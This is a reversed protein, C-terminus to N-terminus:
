FEDCWKGENVAYLVGMGDGLQLKIAVHVDILGNSNLEGIEFHGFYGMEDIGAVEFIDHLFDGM